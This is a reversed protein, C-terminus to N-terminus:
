KQLLLLTILFCKIVYTPLSKEMLKILEKEKWVEDTAVSSPPQEMSKLAGVEQPVTLIHMLKVDITLLM